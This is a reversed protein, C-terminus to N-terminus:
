EGAESKRRESRKSVYGLLVYWFIASWSLFIIWGVNEHAWLLADLGRYYGVVGIVVMRLLNGLYAIVLGFGLVVALTKRPLAEFILVFSIFASIFISFSYLGACYASIGLTHVSGDHFQLTVFSDSSSSHIGLVNLIGSFPVALMYRVYWNGVPFRSDGPFLTSVAQPLVLFLFVLGIFMLSFNAEVKFKVVFYPYVFLVCGFLISLTDLDGLGPHASVFKNYILVLVVLAAGIAMVVYKGGMVRIATEIIRIGPTEPRSPEPAREKRPSFLVMLFLGAFLSVVGLALGAKSFLMVVSMGEFFIVISIIQILKRRPTGEAAVRDAADRIHTWNFRMSLWYVSTVSLAVRPCIFRIKM